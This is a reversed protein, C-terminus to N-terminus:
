GLPGSRGPSEPLIGRILGGSHIGVSQEAFDFPAEGAQRLLGARLRQVGDALLDSALPPADVGAVGDLHLALAALHRLREAVHQLRDAPLGAELVGDVLDHLLECPHHDEVGARHREQARVSTEADDRGAAERVGRLDHAQGEAVLQPLGGRFARPRDGDGVHVLVSAELAERAALPHARPGADGQEHLALEDAQEAEVAVPHLRELVFLQVPGLRHSERGRAGDVLRLQQLIDAPVRRQHLPHDLHVLGYERALSPGLHRAQDQLPRHLEAGRGAAGEHERALIALHRRRAAGERRHQALLRGGVERGALATAHGGLVRGPDAGGEAHLQPSVAQM